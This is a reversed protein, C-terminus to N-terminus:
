LVFIALICRQMIKLLTNDELRYLDQCQPMNRQHLLIFSETKKKM